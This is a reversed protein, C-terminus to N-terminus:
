APPIAPQEQFASEVGVDPWTLSAGVAAILKTRVTEDRRRFAATQPKPMTDFHMETSM